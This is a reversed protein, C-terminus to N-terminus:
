TEQIVNELAWSMLSRLSELDEDEIIPTDGSEVVIDGISALAFDNIEDVLLNATTYASRAIGDLRAGVDENLLLANLAEWHHPQMQKVFAAWEPTLDHDLIDQNASTTSENPKVPQSFLHRIEDRYDETVLVIDDEMVVLQDGLQGIARENIRDLIVSLFGGELIADLADTKVEWDNQKLHNLLRLATEDGTIVDHVAQLDTLLNEPTDDLREVNLMFISATRPIGPAATEVESRIETSRQENETILRDRLEDSEATLASVKAYDIRIPTESVELLNADQQASAAGRQKAAKPEASPSPFAINLIEAWEPPLEIGRLTGKFNRQRRLLNETYKLIATISLRLTSVDSWRPVTAITIPDRRGEYIANAFPQRQVIMTEIPRNSEFLSENTKQILYQNVLRLSERLDSGVSGDQNYQQVFKSKTPQYTSVLSLLSEPIQSIDSNRSLWAELAIDPDSLQCGIELVRAYWELPTEPLKYVVYFDAIWDILYRDLKPHFVRYQQWLTTLYDVAAQDDDVGVLHIIEYIHVFVYSLDAPLYNGQRVQSRWYFYWKKQANTMSDYTPWYQMFPVQPVPHEVHNALRKAQELFNDRPSSVSVSVSITPRYAKEIEPLPRAGPNISRPPIPIDGSNSPMSESSVVIKRFPSTLRSLLSDAQKTYSGTCLQVFVTLDNRSLGLVPLIRQVRLNDRYWDPRTFTSMSWARRLASLARTQQDGSALADLDSFIILTWENDLSVLNEPSALLVEGDIKAAHDIFPVRANRLINAIDQKKRKPALWLIKAHSNDRLLNKCFEALIEGMEQQLGYFGVPLGHRRMVEGLMRAQERETTAKSVEIIPSRLELKGLREVNTGMIEQSTLRIVGLNKRQWDAYRDRFRPTFELWRDGVRLFRGGSEVQRAIKQVPILDERTRLCPVARYRGIGQVIEHEMTWKLPIQAADDIPYATRLVSLDFDISSASPTLDDQIFALLEDGNLRVPQESKAVGILKGRLKPYYAPLLTVGSILNQQDGKITALHKQIEPMNSIIQVDLSQKLTKIVQLKAQFGTEIKLDCQCPLDKFLLLCQSVFFYLTKSEIEPQDFWYLMDPTLSTAPQWARKGQFFWGEGLYGDAGILKRMLVQRAMDFRWHIKFDGPCSVSQLQDVETTDVQFIDSNYSSLAASLQRATPLTVFYVNDDNQPQTSLFQLLPTPLSRQKLIENHAVNKGGRKIAIHVKESILRMQLVYPQGSFIKGLSRFFSM